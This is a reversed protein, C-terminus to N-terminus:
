RNARTNPTSTGCPRDYPALPIDYIQARTANGWLQVGVVGAYPNPNFEDWKEQKFLLDHQDASPAIWTSHTVFSNTYLDSSSKPVYVSQSCKQLAYLQGKLESETNIAAAYGSYPADRNGPNFVSKPSYTAYQNLPVQHQMVRPEVIPLHTYKSNLPRVDLYPQLPASPINRSYIRENTQRQIQTASEM